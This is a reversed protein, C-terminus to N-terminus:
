LALGQKQEEAYESETKHWIIPLFDLGEERLDARLSELIADDTARLNRWAWEEETTDDGLIVWLRLYDKGFSDTSLEPKIDVVRPREPLGLRELALFQYAPIIDDEFVRWIGPSRQPIKRAFAEADKRNTWLHLFETELLVGEPRRLLCYLPGRNEDYLGEQQLLSTFQAREEENMMGRRHDVYYLKM